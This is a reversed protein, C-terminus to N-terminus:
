PGGGGGASSALHCHNLHFNHGVAMKHDCRKGQFGQVPADYSQLTMRNWSSMSNHIAIVLTVELSSCKVTLVGEEESRM